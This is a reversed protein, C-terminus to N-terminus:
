ATGKMLIVSGSIEISDPSCLFSIARAIREPAVWGARDADPMAARNGLTDITGPVICNARVGCAKGEEAICRTLAVVAAKSVAYPTMGAGGSLAALSGITVISGAGRNRMLAFAATAGNRLTTFNADLMATWDVHTLSEIGHGGAWGGALHVYAALGPGQEIETLLSRVAAEDLAHLIRGTAAPVAAQLRAVTEPSRGTFTVSFGSDLMARVVAGGLGGTAGVVLAGSASM